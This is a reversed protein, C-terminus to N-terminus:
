GLPIAGGIGTSVDVCGTRGAKALYKRVFQVILAIHGFGPRPLPACHGICRMIFNRLLESYDRGSVHLIGNDPDHFIHSGLLSAFICAALSTFFATVM